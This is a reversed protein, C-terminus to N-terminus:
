AAAFAPYETHKAYLTSLMPNVQCATLLDVDVCDM